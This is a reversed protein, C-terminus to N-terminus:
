KEAEDGNKCVFFETIPTNGNEFAKKVLFLTDNRLIENNRQEASLFVQAAQFTPKM